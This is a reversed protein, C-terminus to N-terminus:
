KTRVILLQLAPDPAAAGSALSLLAEHGGRVGFRVYSASAGRVTMRASAAETLLTVALPYDGPTFVTGAYSGFVTTYVSRANWSKHTYSPDIGAIGRDDVYNALAWNRFLATLDVPGLAFALTGLGSTTSNDFRSWVAGDAPYLQDVAFRLFSWTAGRTALADNVAVPSNGGPDELYSVFRSFNSIGDARFIPYAGPTDYIEHGGLNARSSYKSERYYLLEEAIHSLGENLWVTEDVDRAATNVYLRRSANILHQFEHAITATTVRDVFEKTRADGAEANPDPALLYFMEGENSAPCALTPDGTAPYLDRPHFFGGVYSGSGRTTMENVARTFLIVIKGNQDIDTAAGFADTDLPYVLTDFRAAFRTYEETTFGGSPNVTDALVISKVGVAAVRAGHYRPNTCAAADNVNVRVIDGVTVTSPIASYSPAVRFTGLTTAAAGRQRGRYWARAGPVRSGLARAALAQLRVHFGDDRTLMAPAGRVSPTRLALPLAPASISKSPSAGLGTGVITASLASSGDITSNFAVLAFEADAGAASLCASSVGSLMAVQGVTMASATAAGTCPTVGAPVVTIVSTDARPGASVVVRATGDQRLARVLGTGDVTVLSPDTSAYTLAGDPTLNSYQDRGSAQVRVTDGALWLKASKPTVVIQEVPGAIAILDATAAVSSGSVFATISISGVLTGITIQTSAAGSADTVAMTPSASATGSVTFNVTAGSVASGAADSVTVSMTGASQGVVATSAPRATITVRSPPGIAPATPESGHCGLGTVAALAALFRRVHTV